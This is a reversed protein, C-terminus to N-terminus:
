PESPKGPRLVQVVALLLIAFPVVLLFQQAGYRRSSQKMDGLEAEVETRATGSRVLAVSHILLPLYNLAVSGFIVGLAIEWVVPHGSGALGSRISLLGLGAALVVAGGFEILIFRPGHFVLDLAALKRVNIVRDM